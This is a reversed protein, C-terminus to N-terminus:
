FICDQIEGGQKLRVRCLEIESFLTGYFKSQNIQTMNKKVQYSHQICEYIGMFSMLESTGAHKYSGQTVANILQM